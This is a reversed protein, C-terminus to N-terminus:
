TFLPKPLSDITSLFLQSYFTHLLIWKLQSYQQYHKQIYKECFLLYCSMWYAGYFLKIYQSVLPFSLVPVPSHHPVSVPYLVPFLHLDVMSSSSSPSSCFLVHVSPIETWLYVTASINNLPLLGFMGEASFM